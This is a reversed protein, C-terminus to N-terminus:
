AFCPKSSVSDANFNFVHNEPRIFKLYNYPSLGSFEKFEKIFHSQDTYYLDHAITVLDSYKARHLREFTKEFRVIRQYKKPSIGIAAKFRREFQRESIRYHKLVSEVSTREDIRNGHIIEDIFGPRIRSANLKDYLYRSLMMIREPHSRAAALKKEICSKCLMQIDVNMDVLENANIAFLAHLAVPYLSVGVFSFTGPLQGKTPQTDLGNVSLAAIRNGHEDYSPPFDDLNQFILSTSREAFNDIDFHPFNPVLSDYSWFYRVYHKLAPPPAYLKYEM